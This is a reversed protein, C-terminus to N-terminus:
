LTTTTKLWYRLYYHIIVRIFNLFCDFFAHAPDIVRCRRFWQITNWIRLLSRTTIDTYCDLFSCFVRVGRGKGMNKVKRSGGTHDPSPPTFGGTERLRGKGKKIARLILSLTQGVAMSSGTRAKVWPLTLTLQNSTLLCGLDSGAPLIIFRM